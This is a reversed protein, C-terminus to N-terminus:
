AGWDAAEQGAEGQVNVDGSTLLHQANIHESDVVCQSIMAGPLWSNNQSSAAESLSTLERGQLLFSENVIRM